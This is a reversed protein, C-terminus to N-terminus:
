WATPIGNVFHWYHGDTDTPQKQSYYYVTASALSDNNSAMTMSAWEEATGTYYVSQLKSCDEFTYQKIETISKPLVIYEMAKCAIFAHSGLSTVRDPLTISTLSTCYSFAAAEISTVSDPIVISQLSEKYSFASDAICTVSGDTPIVSNECGALLTKTATEILCNDVSHYNPNNKDVVISALKECFGLTDKEIVSVSDPIFISELSRCVRFAYSEIRVLGSSLQVSKLNECSFFACNEITHVSAPISVSTLGDCNRFAGERILSIGEPIVISKLGACDSFASTGISTVSGDSPIVSANCGKLLTKSTTEILCNGDSHYNPNNEDVTISVLAPCDYLLPMEISTVCDPIFISTLKKLERIAHKEIATVPYGDISKPIVLDTDTCTGMGSVTCTKGDFNVYYELGESEVLPPQPPATSETTDPGDSGSQWAICSALMSTGCLLLALAALFFGKRLKKM